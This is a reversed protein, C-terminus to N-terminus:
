ANKKDTLMTMELKYPCLDPPIFKKTITKACRYVRKDRKYVVGLMDGSIGCSVYHSLPHDIVFYGAAVRPCNKCFTNHALLRDIKM